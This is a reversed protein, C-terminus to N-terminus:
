TEALSVCIVPLDVLSRQMVRLFIIDTGSSWCRLCTNNRPQGPPRRYSRESAGDSIHAGGGKIRLRRTALAPAKITSTECIEVATGLNSAVHCPGPIGPNDRCSEWRELLERPLRCLNYWSAPDDLGDRIGPGSLYVTTVHCTQQQWAPNSVLTM